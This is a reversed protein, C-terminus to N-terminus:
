AVRVRYNTHSRSSSNCHAIRQHAVNCFSRLNTVTTLAVSPRFLGTACRCVILLNTGTIELSRTDPRHFDTRPTTPPPKRGSDLSKDPSLLISGSWPRPRGPDAVQNNPKIQWKKRSGQANTFCSERHALPHSRRSQVGRRGYSCPDLGHHVGIGVSRLSATARSGSSGTTQAVTTPRVLSSQLPLRVRMSINRCISRPCAM